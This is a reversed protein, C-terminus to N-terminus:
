REACTGLRGISYILFDGREGGSGNFRLNIRAVSALVNDQSVIIGWGAEQSFKTWPIDLVNMSTSKLDSVGIYTSRAVSAKYNNYETVYLENEPVLEVSFGITSQYVICVGGWRSIDMGEDNYNVLNFGLGAYPYEYGARIEVHARLGGYAKILPGYFNDYSDAKIEPPYSFASSGGYQSDTYEFWWGASEELSGTEVKGSNDEPGCWLDGCIVPYSSSSSVSNFSSSSLFGDIQPTTTESVISQSGVVNVVPCSLEEGIDHGNNDIVRVSLGVGVAALPDVTLEVKVDPYVDKLVAGASNNSWTWDALAVIPFYESKCGYINWNLIGGSQYNYFYAGGNMTLGSSNLACLCGSSETEDTYNSMKSSVYEDHAEAIQERYDTCATMAAAAALTTCLTIKKM